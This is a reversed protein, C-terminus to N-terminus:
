TIIAHTADEMRWFCDEKTDKSAYRCDRGNSIAYPTTEGDKAGIVLKGGRKKKKIRRKFEM